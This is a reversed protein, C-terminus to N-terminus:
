AARAPGGSTLTPIQNRFQGFGVIALLMLPYRFIRSIRL